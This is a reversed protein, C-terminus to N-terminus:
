QLVYDVEIYHYISLLQHLAQAIYIGNSYSM